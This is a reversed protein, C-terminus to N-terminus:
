FNVLLNVSKYPILRNWRLRIQELPASAASVWPSATDEGETFSPRDGPISGPRASRREPDGEQNISSRRRRLALVRDDGRPVLQM